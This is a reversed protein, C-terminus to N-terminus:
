KEKLPCVKICQFCCICKGEDIIPYIFGEEDPILSIAGKPCIDYCAACGCCKEKTDYLIPYEKM